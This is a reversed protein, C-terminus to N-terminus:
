YRATNLLKEIAPRWRLPYDKVRVFEQVQGGALREELLRLFGRAADQMKADVWNRVEAEAWHAFRASDDILTYDEGSPLKQLQLDVGGRFSVDILRAGSFDNDIFRNESRKLFEQERPPVSGNFIAKRLLGSFRCNILEVADCFWNEISVDQFSCDIFTANGGPGMRLVAGDFTCGRYESVRRGAGFSASGISVGNFNCLEFRCGDSSFGAMRRGAYDVERLLAGALTVRDSELGRPDLTNSM